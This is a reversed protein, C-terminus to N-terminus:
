SLFIVLSLRKLVLQCLFLYSKYVYSRKFFLEHKTMSIPDLYIAKAIFKCFKKPLM